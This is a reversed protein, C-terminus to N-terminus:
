SDTARGVSSITSIDIIDSKRESTLNKECSKSFNFLILELGKFEKKRAQYHKRGILVALSFMNGHKCM